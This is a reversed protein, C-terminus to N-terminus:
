GPQDVLEFCVLASHEGQVVQCRLYCSTSPAPDPDVAAAKHPTQPPQQHLLGLPLPPKSTGRRKDM